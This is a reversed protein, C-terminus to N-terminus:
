GRSPRVTPMGPCLVRATTGSLSIFAVLLSSVFVLRVKRQDVKAPAHDRWLRGEPLTALKKSASRGVGTRVRTDLGLVDSYLKEVRWISKGRGPDVNIIFSLVEKGRDNPRITSSSVVIETYPLDEALLPLARFKMQPPNAPMPLPFPSPPPQHDNVITQSSAVSPAQLTHSDSTSMSPRSERPADPISGQRSRTGMQMHAPPPTERPYQSQSAPPTVTAPPLPFDEVAPRSLKSKESRRSEESRRPVQDYAAAYQAGGSSHASAEYASDTDDLDLFEAGEETTVSGARDSDPVRGNTLTRGRSATLTAENWPGLGAGQVSVDGGEVSARGNVVDTEQKLPSDPKADGFNFKMGPSVAPSAMTAYYRKAEEPLSIQSERSAVARAVTLGAEGNVTIGVPQSPSSVEIPPPIRGHPVQQGDDTLGNTPRLPESNSANVAPLGRSSNAHSEPTLSVASQLQQQQQQAFRQAQPPQPAARPPVQSQWAGLVPDATDPSTPKAQRSTTSPSPSAASQVFLSDSRAPVPTPLQQAQFQSFSEETPSLSLPPSKRPTVEADGNTSSISLPSPTHSTSSSAQSSSLHSNPPHTLVPSDVRPAHITGQSGKREPAM